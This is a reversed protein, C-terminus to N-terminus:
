KKCRRTRLKDSVDISEVMPDYWFLIENAGAVNSNGFRNNHWMSVSLELQKGYPNSWAVIYRKNETPKEAELAIWHNNENCLTEEDYGLEDYTDLIMKGIVRKM